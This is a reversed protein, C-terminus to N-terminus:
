SPYVYEASPAIAELDTTLAEPWGIGVWSRVRLQANYALHGTTAMDVCLDRVATADDDSDVHAFKTEWLRWEADQPRKSDIVVLLNRM